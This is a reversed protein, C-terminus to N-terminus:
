EANVADESSDLSPPRHQPLQHRLYPGTFREIRNRGKAKADYLAQDARSVLEHPAHGRRPVMTACGISITVFGLDSHQHPLRRNRVAQCIEEAISSAGHIDTRPLIVAFEEGGYRAVLDAPRRLVDLASEAIQRLCSDGRPHGYTDNYLKFRDVDIFLLSLSAEERLNRRWESALVEDFRRRNAIGTLADVIVLNEMAHYAAQLKEDALKRENIDRVLNLYGLPQNNAPDRYVRLSAEAWLYDGDRKRVRYELTGGDSGAKLARIAMELEAFDQPHVIDHYTHGILEEPSWGTVATVGPSVYTRRGDLNALIIVDRSTDTVLKHLAAVRYLQKQVRNLNNFVISIAYLTFLQASLYLQFLAARSKNQLAGSLALPGSHHVTFWGGIAAIALTCASAWGINIQILVLVLFPFTLFLLPFRSQSFVCVAVALLLAPYIWRLRLSPLKHRRSGLIAVIAPTVSAIGLLDSLIWSLASSLFSEYGTAQNHIGNLIAPILPGCVCAYAFFRLLYPISTFQPLRTSKPRLLQAGIIVEILNLANFFLNRSLSEHILWSGLLLGFFGALLYGPWRWRPALLLVALLIGNAFWIINFGSPDSDYNHACLIALVMACILALMRALYAHSRTFRRFNPPITM